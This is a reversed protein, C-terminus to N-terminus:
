GPDLVRFMNTMKLNKLVPDETWPPAENNQRREWIKHREVVMDQYLKLMWETM